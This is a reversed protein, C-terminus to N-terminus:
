DAGVLVFPAWVSPHSADPIERSELLSLMAGQLAQARNTGARAASITARTLLPSLPRGTLAGEKVVLIRNKGNLVDAVPAILDQYLGHAVGADFALADEEVDDLAAAARIQGSPDLDRRLSQVADKLQDNSLAVKQWRVTTANAAFVYTEDETTVPYLVADDPGLGAQVDALNIPRPHTLQTLKPFQESIQQDQAEIQGEIQSLEASLTETESGLSM